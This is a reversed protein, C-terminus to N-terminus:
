KKSSTAATSTSLPDRGGKINDLIATLTTNIPNADVLEQFLRTAEDKQNLKYDSLALYYKADAYNPVLRLSQTLATAAPEYNGLNYNLVGIQFYPGADNPAVTVAVGLDALAAAGNGQSLDLQTLLYIADLYNNKLRLADLIYEKSKDYNKNALEARALMLYISPNQPSRKLAELYASAAQGSAGAVGLPIVNEYVAGLSLWNQYDTPDLSTATSAASVANTLGNQFQTKVIDATLSGQQLINSIKVLEIQSLLRYYAPNKDANIAQLTYNEAGQVDASNLTTVGRNAYVSALVKESLLYGGSIVGILILVLLLITVFGKRSDQVYFITREKLMGERFLSALFLGTFIFAFIFMVVGSVYMIHVIWLYIAVFFSSIILYLSLQDKVGSFIAKGGLYLLFGLFILWALIGLSGTTVLFTPITGVGSDFDTSWFDTANVGDPKSLNWESSFRNPGIGLIPSRSISAKAVTFTSQWTPSVDLVNIKFFSTISSGIPGAGLTFIVAFVLVILSPWPLRRHGLGQPTTAQYYNGMEPAQNTSLHNSSIFYVFFLLAFFGILTIISVPTAWIITFNTIALLFLEIILLTYLLSKALRSLVLLELSVLTLLVAAGAFIALDNWKGLPSSAVDTFYNFSLFNPGLFLHLIQYIALVIFGVGFWLYCSFINKKNRVFVSVLFMLLFLLLIFSFTGPELGSAILSTARNPSFIAALLFIIPIAVISLSLWNIPLTLKGVKFVIVIWSFLSILVVVAVIIMKGYGFAILPSPIFFIPLLFLLAGVLVHPITTLINREPVVEETKIEIKEM